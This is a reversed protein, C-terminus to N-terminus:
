QLRKLTWADRADTKNVSRYVGGSFEEDYCTPAGEGQMAVCFNGPGTSTWTGERTKDAEVTTLTGDARVTQTLVMKGDASTVEFIGAAPKGDAALLQDTEADPGASGAVAPQATPGIDDSEEAVNDCAALAGALAAVLLLHKM